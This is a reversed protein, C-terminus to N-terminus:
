LEIRRDDSTFIAHGEKIAAFYNPCAGLKINNVRGDEHRIERIDFSALFLERPQM